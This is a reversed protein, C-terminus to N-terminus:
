NWSKTDEILLAVEVSDQTIISQDCSFFCITLGLAPIKHGIRKGFPFTKQIDEKAKNKDLSPPISSCLLKFAGQFVHILGSINSPCFTCSNFTQVRLGFSAAPCTIQNTPTNKNQILIINTINREWWSTGVACNPESHPLTLFLCWNLSTCTGKDSSGRTLRAEVASQKTRSESKYCVISDADDRWWVVQTLSWFLM